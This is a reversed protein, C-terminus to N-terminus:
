PNSLSYTTCEWHNSNTKRRGEWGRGQLEKAIMMNFFGHGVLAIQNHEEAHKILLNAAKIARKKAYNYSECNSSYGLFWLARLIVTWATPTLKLNWFKLLPSPLEVERFVPDSIIDSKPDLISASHIARNLDSTFVLRVKSITIMSERPLEKEEIVGVYDYKEVWDKFSHITVPRNEIWQSKGHRIFSIEM